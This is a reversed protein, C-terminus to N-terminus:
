ISLFNPFKHMVFQSSFLLRKQLLHSYQSDFIFVKSGKYYFYSFYLFIIFDYFTNFLIDKLNHTQSHKLCSVFFFLCFIQINCKVSILFMQKNFSAALFFFFGVIHSFINSNYTISLHNKELNYYLYGLM